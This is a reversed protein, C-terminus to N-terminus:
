RLAHIQVFRLFLLLAIASYSYANALLITTTHNPTPPAVAEDLRHTLTPWPRKTTAQSPDQEKPQDEVFAELLDLGKLKILFASFFIVVGTAVIVLTLNEPHPGLLRDFFIYSVLQDKLSPPLWQHGIFFVLWGISAALLNIFTAYEVSARRSLRMKRYLVRAELAIAVLLFLFQFLYTQLPLVAVDTM